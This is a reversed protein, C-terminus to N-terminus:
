MEAQHMINSTPHANWIHCWEHTIKTAHLRATQETRKMVPTMSRSGHAILLHISVIAFFLTGTWTKCVESLVYCMSDVFLVDETRSIMHCNRKKSMNAEDKHSWWQNGRLALWSSCQLGSATVTKSASLHRKWHHPVHAMSVIESAPSMSRALCSCCWQPRQKSSPSFVDKSHPMAHSRFITNKKYEQIANCTSITEVVQCKSYIM